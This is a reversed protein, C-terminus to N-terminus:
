LRELIFQDLVSSLPESSADDLELNLRVLDQKQLIIVSEDESSSDGFSPDFSELLCEEMLEPKPACFLSDVEEKSPHEPTRKEKPTKLVRPSRQFFNLSSRSFRTLTERQKTYSEKSSSRLSAVKSSIQNLTVKLKNPASNQTKTSSCEDQSASSYDFSESDKQAISRDPTANPTAPPSMEQSKLPVPPAASKSILDFQHHWGQKDFDNKFIWEFSRNTNICISLGRPSVTCTASKIVIIELLSKSNLLLLVHNSHLHAWAIKGFAQFYCDDQSGILDMLDDAYNQLLSPSSPDILIASYETESDYLDSQTIHVPSTYTYIQM